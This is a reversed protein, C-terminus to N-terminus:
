ANVEGSSPRLVPSISIVVVEGLLHVSQVVVECCPLLHWWWKRSITSLTHSLHTGQMPVHRVRMFSCTEWNMSYM